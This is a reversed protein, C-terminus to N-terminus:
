AREGRRDRVHVHRGRREALTQLGGVHRGPQGRLEVAHEGRDPGPLERRRGVGHVHEGASRRAVDDAEHAIV